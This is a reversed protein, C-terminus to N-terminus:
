EISEKRLEDMQRKLFDIEKMVLKVQILCVIVSGVVAGRIISDIMKFFNEASM